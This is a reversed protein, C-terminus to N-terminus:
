NRPHYSHCTERRMALMERRMALMSPCHRRKSTPWRKSALRHLSIYSKRLSPAFEEEPHCSSVGRMKKM